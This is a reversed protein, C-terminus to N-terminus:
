YKFKFIFLLGLSVLNIASTLDSFSISSIKFPKIAIFIVRIKFLLKIPKDIIKTTM